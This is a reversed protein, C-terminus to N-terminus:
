CTADVFDRWGEAALPDIVEAGCWLEEHTGRSTWVPRATVTVGTGPVTLDFTGPLRAKDSLAFRVGGYSVDLLRGHTTTVDAHVVTGVVKRPWRRIPSHHARYAAVASRVRPLFTPDVLPDVVFMADSRKAERSLAQDDVGHTIIVPMEPRDVRSHRALHLGNSTDLRVATVLLDPYVTTLLHRATAFSRVPAVLHGAESLVTTMQRLTNELPDALLILAPM